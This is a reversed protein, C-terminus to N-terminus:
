PRPGPEDESEDVPEAQVETAGAEMARRIEEASLTIPQTLTPTEIQQYRELIGEPNQQNEPILVGGSISFRVAQDVSIPLPIVESAPFFVVYGTVPTPSSPIFINVYDRGSVENIQRMGSGTVFGISYIGKRPYEIAVVTNFTVAKEKMFFEVVQRAYPYIIKVVPFKGMASEFRGLIRKGVFTALVFGATFVLLLAVLIGVSRPYRRDLDERVREWNVNKLGGRSNYLPDAPPDGPNRPPGNRQYMPDHVDIGFVSELASRGPGTRMLIAEIGDNVPDVINSSFFNYVIVIVGITLVTPLLARLGRKFFIGLRSKAKGAM